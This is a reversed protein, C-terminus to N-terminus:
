FVGHGNGKQLKTKHRSELQPKRDSAANEPDRGGQGTGGVGRVSLAKGAPEIRRGSERKRRSM